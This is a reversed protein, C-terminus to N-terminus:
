LIFIKVCYYIIPSAFVISDFRDMVGGHGLFVKGYDKLKASRKIKSAVLDGTQSLISAIITMTILLSLPELKFVRSYIVVLVVSGIIGGIAGEISKKPSVKEYLRHKGFLSGILYAFTDTGFAVIFVLWIYPTGDLYYIHFLLFPIYIIALLTLGIDELKYKSSFLYVILMLIIIATFVLDLSILKTLTSLYIAITGVIGISYIPNIDICEFAHYIELIGILSIILISTSLLIGGKNVVLLLLIIGIIATVVRKALEGM